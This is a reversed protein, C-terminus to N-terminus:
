KREGWALKNRLTKFYHSERMRIFKAKRTATQISVEDTPKISFHIQGDITMSIAESRGEFHVHVVKKPPLIIPRHSLTHPAVPHVLICQLAPSIIPGGLSMSYATSGTPTSFILGDSRYTSLVRRNAKVHFNTLRALGGHGLVIENLAYARFIKEKRGRDDKRWVFAKLLMREDVHFDGEFVRKMDELAKRPRLESLFGLSGFNIGLLYGDKKQLTRMMKLLTGDGGIGIKLDYSQEDDILHIKNKLLSVTRVDGHVTEVGQSEFFVLLEELFKTEEKEKAPKNHTYIAVSQFSTKRRRSAM